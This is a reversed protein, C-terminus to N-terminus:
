TRQYTSATSGEELQIADIFIRVANTGADDAAVKFM